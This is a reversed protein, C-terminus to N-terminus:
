ININNLSESSRRIRLIPPRVLFVIKINFYLGSICEANTILDPLSVAFVGGVILM